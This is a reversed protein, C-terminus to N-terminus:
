PTMSRVLAQDASASNRGTRKGNKPNIWTKQVGAPIDFYQQPNSEIAASMVEMWIPLAAQSGTENPGLMTADDTGVWVGCALAPSYGIFWADKYDNTTGTKGALPRPLHRAKLATGADIVATLMDTIISATIPTMVVRAIPKARWILKGNADLIDSLGYAATYRGSEAFCTYANTMELLSTEYSGLALSLAPQLESNIGLKHAFEIVASPGLKEMLRVAPINKSHMLAWRFSVEGEYTKSFNEPQYDIQKGQQHYVVPADLLTDTQEFGKEIASAYVFPKFASGPQRRASVARNFGNSAPDRGGIMTAIAGTRIQIAVLAAQPTPGEIRHNSRRMELKEIGNHVASQAIQHLRYDLTTNVTLGGKYMLDAGVISELQKKTYEVFYPARRNNHETSVTKIPEAVAMEYTSQDIANTVLMQRLVLNRRQLAREPNILPSYRSPAQPLGALLASEGLTLEDMRKGFYIRAASGVGYAGSGLYIQNLYLELIEDKTYRRELQLSLIAERFKRIMSKRPTLFLTKSLQQTITSAGEAYRRKIINKLAARLIGRIAIGSHEYFRRDETALLATVLEPPMIKLPVPDRREIFLEALLINDSSYIRTIASPTYDELAQIQPLDHTLALFGGTTLGSILGAVIAWILFTFRKRRQM